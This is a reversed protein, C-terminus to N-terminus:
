ACAHVSTCVRAVGLDWARGPAVRPHAGGGDPLFGGGRAGGLGPGGRAGGGGSGGGWSERTAAGPGAGGRRCRASRPPAARSPVAKCPESRSPVARLPALAARPGEGAGARGPWARAAAAPGLPAAPCRGGGAGGARLAAPVPAHPDEEEAEQSESVGVPLTLAPCRPCRPAQCPERPVARSPVARGPAPVRSRVRATGGRGAAIRGAGALPARPQSGPPSGRSPPAPCPRPPAGGAPAPVGPKHEHVGAPSGRGQTPVLRVGGQQTRICGPTPEAEPCPGGTETGNSTGRNPGHVGRLPGAGGVGPGTGSSGPHPWLLHPDPPGRRESAPIQRHQPLRPPGQLEPSGWLLPPRTHPVRGPRPSAPWATRRDTWGPYRPSLPRAGPAAPVGLEWGPCREPAPSPVAHPVGKGGGGRKLPKSCGLPEGSGGWTGVHGGGFSWVSGDLSVSARPVAHGLDRLALPAPSPAAGTGGRGGRGGAPGWLMPVTRAM